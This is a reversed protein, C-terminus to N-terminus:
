RSLKVPHKVDHRDLIAKVKATQNGGISKTYDKENELRYLLRFAKSYSGTSVYEDIVQSDILSQVDEPATDLGFISAPAEPEIVVTGAPPKYQALQHSFGTDLYEGPLSYEMEDRGGVSLTARRPEGDGGTLNIVSFGQRLDGEGELGLAKVLQSHSAVILDMNAKRAETLLTGIHDGANRCNKVIARWEDIIVTVKAHGGELVAGTGLQEYRKNMEGILWSLSAGIARYDRGQGIHRVDGWKPPTGHPDIVLCNQKADIIHRLLTTKGTDSAGVVLIRQKSALEPLLPRIPESLLAEANSIINKTSYQQSSIGAFGSPLAKGTRVQAVLLPLMVTKAHLDFDASDAATRAQRAESQVIALDRRNQAVRLKFWCVGLAMALTISVLGALGGATVLIKAVLIVWPAAALWTVAIVLLLGVALSWGLNTFNQIIRLM